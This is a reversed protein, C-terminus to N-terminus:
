FPYGGLRGAGPAQMGGFRGNGATRFVIEAMRKVRMWRPKGTM